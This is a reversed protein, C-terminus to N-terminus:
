MEAILQDTLAKRGKDDLNQNLLKMTLAVAVDASVTRLSAEAKGQATAIDREANEKLILAEERAKAEIGQAAEKAADRARDITERSQQDADAVMTRIKEDLQSMERRLTDANDLSQEIVAERQDLNDLIPSFAFKKLIYAALGFIILYWFFMAFDVPSGGHNAAADHAGSTHGGPAETYAVTQAPITEAM